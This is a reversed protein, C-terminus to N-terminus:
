YSHKTKATGISLVNESESFILLASAQLLLLYNKEM